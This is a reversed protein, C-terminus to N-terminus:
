REAVPIHRSLEMSDHLIRIITIADEGEMYLLLHRGRRGPEAMHLTRLGRAIEDRTKSRLLEGSSFEDITDLIAEIYADAQRGGFNAATWAAINALDEEALRGLIIKTRRSSM